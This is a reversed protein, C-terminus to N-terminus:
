RVNREPPTSSLERFHFVNSGSLNLSRIRDTLTNSAERCLGTNGLLTAATPIPYSRQKERLETLSTIIEEAIYELGSTKKLIKILKELTEPVYRVKGEVAELFFETRKIEKFDENLCKDRLEIGILEAAFAEKAITEIGHRLDHLLVYNKQFVTCELSNRQAM